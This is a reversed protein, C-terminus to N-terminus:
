VDDTGTLLYEVRDAERAVHRLMRSFEAATLGAKAVWGKAVVRDDVAAHFSVLRAAANLELLPEIGRSRESLRDHQAVAAVFQYTRETASVRVAHGRGQAFRVDVTDGSVRLDDGECWTQWDNM